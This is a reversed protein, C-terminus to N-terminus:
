KTDRNMQEIIKRNQELITQNQLILLASSPKLIETVQAGWIDTGPQWEVAIVQGEYTRLDLKEPAMAAQMQTKYFTEITKGKKSFPAIVVLKGEQVFGIATNQFIVEETIHGARVVIPSQRAQVVTMVLIVLLFALAPAGLKQLRNM